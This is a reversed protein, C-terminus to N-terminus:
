FKNKLGLDLCSKLDITTYFEDGTEGTNLDFKVAGISLISSYSQNGMTEIDLMIHKM